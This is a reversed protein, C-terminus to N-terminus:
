PLLNLRMYMSNTTVAAPPVMLKNRGFIAKVSRGLLSGPPSHIWPENMLDALSIPKRRLLPHRHDTMVVLPAEYLIEAKMDDNDDTAIWRTILVDTKRERLNRM